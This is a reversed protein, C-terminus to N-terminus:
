GWLRGWCKGEGKGVEEGGLNWSLPIPSYKRFKLSIWSECTIPQVIVSLHRHHRRRRHHHYYYYYYCLLIKKFRAVFKGKWSHIHYLSNLIATCNCAVEGVDRGGRSVYAGEYLRKHFRFTWKRTWLLGGRVELGSGCLDLVCGRVRKFESGNWYRRGVEGLDEVCDRWGPIGDSMGSWTEDRRHMSCEGGREKWYYEFYTWFLKLIGVSMGGGHRTEGICAAYEAGRKGTVNLINFDEGQATRDAEYWKRRWV